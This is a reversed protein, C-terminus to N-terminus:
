AVLAESRSLLVHVPPVASAPSVKIRLRFPDKPGGSPQIDIGEAGEYLDTLFRGLDAKVADLVDPTRPAALRDHIHFEAEDFRFRLKGSLAPEDQLLRCAKLAARFAARLRAPVDREGKRRRSYLLGLKGDAQDLSYHAEHSILLVGPGQFVHSYDAVDILLEDDLRRQQIWQHFIPIVARPGPEFAEAAFFKIGFRQAEDLSVRVSSPPSM